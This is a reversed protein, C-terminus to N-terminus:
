RVAGPLNLMRLLLPVATRIGDEPYEVSGVPSQEAGNCDILRICQLARRVDAKPGPPRRETAADRWPRHAKRRVVRERRARQLPQLDRCRAAVLRALTDGFFTTGHEDANEAM